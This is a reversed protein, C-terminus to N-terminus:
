RLKGTIFSAPSITPMTSTSLNVYAVSSCTQKSVVHVQLVISVKNLDVGHVSTVLFARSPVLEPQGHVVFGVRHDRATAAM